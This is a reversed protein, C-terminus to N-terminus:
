MCRRTLSLATPESLCAHSPRALGARVYTRSMADLRPMSQEGATSRQEPCCGARLRQAPTAERHPGRCGCRGPRAQDATGNHNPPGGSGAAATSAASVPVNRLPALHCSTVSQRRSLLLPDLLRDPVATGGVAQVHRNEDPVQLQLIQTLEPHRGLPQVCGRSVTTARQLVSTASSDVVTYTHTSALPCIVPKAVRCSSSSNCKPRRRLRPSGAQRLLQVVCEHAGEWRRHLPDSQAHELLVM